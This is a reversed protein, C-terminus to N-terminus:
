AADLDLQVAGVSYVLVRELGGGADLIGTDICTGRSM